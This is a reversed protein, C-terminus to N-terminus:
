WLDEVPTMAKDEVKMKRITFVPGEYDIIHEYDRYSEAIEKTECIHVLSSGSKGYDSAMVVWVVKM